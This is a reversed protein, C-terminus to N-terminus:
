LRPRVPCDAQRDFHDGTVTGGGATTTSGDCADGIPGFVSTSGRQMVTMPNNTWGPDDPGPRTVTTNAARRFDLRLEHPSRAPM